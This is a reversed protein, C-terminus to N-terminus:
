RPGILLESVDRVFSFFLPSFFNKHIHTCKVELVVAARVWGFPKCDSQLTDDRAFTQVGKRHFSSQFVTVVGAPFPHSSVRDSLTCLVQGM